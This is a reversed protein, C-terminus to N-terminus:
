LALTIHCGSCLKVKRNRANKQRMCIIESTQVSCSTALHQYEVIHGSVHFRVGERAPTNRTTHRPLDKLVLARAKDRAFETAHCGRLYFYVPCSVFFHARKTESDQDHLAEVKLRM